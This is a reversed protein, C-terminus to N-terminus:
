VDDRISRMVADVEILDNTEWVFELSDADLRNLTMFSILRIDSPAVQVGFPTDIVLREVTDSDEFQQQIRRYFVLGNNLEVRLDRRQVQGNITKTYGTNEVYLTQGTSSVLQLLTFDRLRTPMWIAKCRGYRAFLFERLALVDPRSKAQWQYKTFTTPNDTRDDSLTKGSLFDIVEVDRGYEVSVEDRWNTRTELVPLGRYTAPETEPTRFDPQILKFQTRFILISDTERTLKQKDTLRATRVPVVKTEPGWTKQTPSSIELGGSQVNTITAIEHLSDIFLGVLSGIEFDYTATACPIFTAGSTLTLGLLQQDPWIPLGFVRSQWAFLLNELKARDLNNDVISSFELQRRPKQRIKVRQEKKNKSVMVDTLWELREVIRDAWNAKPWWALIRTGAVKLVPAISGVSFNFTYSADITPAGITTVSLSYVKSQLPGWNTPPATQGSLAMGQTLTEVISSLTNQVFFANWVEIPKVQTSLLNGVNVLEPVVHTRYYFDNLFSGTRHGQNASSPTSVAHNASRTGYLNVGKNITTDKPHTSIRERNDFITPAWGNTLQILPSKVM